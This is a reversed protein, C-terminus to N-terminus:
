PAVEPAMPTAEIGVAPISFRGVPQVIPFTPRAIPPIPTTAMMATTGTTATGTLYVTGTGSGMLSVSPWFTSSGGGGTASPADTAITVRQSGATDIRQTAITGSIQAINTSVSMPTTEVVIGRTHTPQETPQDVRQQWIQRLEEIQGLRDFNIKLMVGNALALVAASALLIINWRRM